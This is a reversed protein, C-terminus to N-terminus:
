AKGGNRKLPLVTVNGSADAGNRSEAKADAKEKDKARGKGGPYEIRQHFVGTLVRAYAKSLLHLDKLTLDCEDLQGEAFIKRFISEVHGQIRSPSPEALTRASAEAADALLLLGAERTQPKPGPYSYDQERIVENPSAKEKARHFFFTILSTGHHQSIIEEIEQGLKNERALEVGKKVHAILVLASMSPALKDHPNPRGYQNEIFYHPSKLKGIDHYLAAVKALLANAGVANAGAEVMNSLILSHHYTGPARVMLDQLLPQELNMLEMLKFRSTYGFLFEAVPSVGLICLLSVVGGAAVYAAGAAAHGIGQFDLFTIGFWALLMAGTLPLVTKLLQSRDQARRVLFAAIMGSFFLLAFLNLGAGLMETSIFALVLGAFFCVLYPFFLALIGTAGALPLSYQLVELQLAEVGETLPLRFLAMFKALVGFVLIVIALFAVDRSTLPKFLGCRASMSLGLMFLVSITFVGLPRFVDFVQESEGVLAQLKRQQEASVVDGQRVIVEGKKIQYYVPEVAQMAEGKRRATEAQNETLSPGTLPSVLRLIAQRVALPKELDKKLTASLDELMEPVDPVEAVDLRLREMSRERDRVLIGSNVDHLSDEQGVVGASLYNDLWPLVWGTVLGRFEESRWQFLTQLNVEANLREAIKWRVDESMEPPVGELTRFVWAVGDEIRAYAQPSLDFVRPQNDAVQRRKARTSATDEVLVDQGAAVDSGAIEGQLYVKPGDARFDVGTLAALLALVLILLTAGLRAGRTCFPPLSFLRPRSGNGPKRNSGNKRRTSKM